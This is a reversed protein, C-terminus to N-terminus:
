FLFVVRAERTNLGILFQPRKFTESWAMRKEIEPTLKFEERIIDRVHAPVGPQRSIPATLHSVSIRTVNQSTEGTTRFLVPFQGSSHSVVGAGTSVQSTFLDYPQSVVKLLEPNAFIMSAGTDLLAYALLYLRGDQSFLETDEFRSVGDPFMEPTVCIAIPATQM